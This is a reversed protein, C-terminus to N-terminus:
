RGNMPRQQELVGRNHLGAGTHLAIAGLNILFGDRDIKRAGRLRFWEALLWPGAVAGVNTGYVRLASPHSGFLANKEVGGAALVQMTTHADYLGAALAVGTIAWRARKWDTPSPDSVVWYRIQPFELNARAVFADAEKRGLPEGCHIAPSAYVSWCVRHTTASLASSLSALVAAFLIRRM